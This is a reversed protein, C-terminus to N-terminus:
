RSTILNLIDPHKHIRCNDMVIVSKPEPFPQMQDLLRTIFTYFLDSNFSGEVIDCHIIGDNLALAPLVSFRLSSLIMYARYCSLSVCRRGRCFFAKRTAKQGKIAWARGRYTTRRDVASEDVFVLQQAEYTGIRAAFAARKEASREIAVRTLQLALRSIGLQLQSAHCAKKM